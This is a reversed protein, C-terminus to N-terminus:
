SVSSVPDMSPEDDPRTPAGPMAPPATPTTAGPTVHGMRVLHLFQVARPKGDEVLQIDSPSLDEDFRGDRDTAVLDIVVLEAGVRFGPREGSQRAAPQQGAASVLALVIPLLRM